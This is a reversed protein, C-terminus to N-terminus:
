ADNRAQVIEWIKDGLGAASFPKQVFGALGKGTFRQIAAQENYGSMLLVPTEPSIQRMLSFAAVGDLKPMTLDLLVASVEDRRERFLAVGVEGDAIGQIELMHMGTFDAIQAFSLSTNEVLWIATAKPMLPPAM